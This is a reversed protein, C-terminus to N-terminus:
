PTDVVVDGKMGAEFHGPQLCAFSVTGADTFQWIVEGTAGSALSVSNPEEHEMGPFRKMMEHHELIEAETGLVFEHVLQGENIVEFRITEGQMVTVTAPIYDMGDTMTVQVTRVVESAKGPKGAPGSHHGEEGDHHEAMGTANEQHGEDAAHGHAGHGGMSCGSLTLLSALVSTGVLTRRPLDPMRLWLPHHTSPSM